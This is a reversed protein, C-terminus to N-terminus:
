CHLAFRSSEIILVNLFASSILARFLANAFVSFSEFSTAACFSFSALSIASSNLFSCSMSSLFDFIVSFKSLSVVVPASESVSTFSCVVGAGSVTGDFVVLSAGVVIVVGLSAGVVLVDVGVVDVNIGVVDVVSVGSTGIMGVSVCVRFGLVVFGTLVVFAGFVVRACVSACTVVVFFGFTKSWLSFSWLPAFVGIAVGFGSVSCFRDLATKM